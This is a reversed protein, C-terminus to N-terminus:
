RIFSALADQFMREAAEEDGINAYFVGLNNLATARLPHTKPLTAAILDHASQFLSKAERYGGRSMYWEAQNNLVMAKVDPPTQPRHDIAKQLGQYIELAREDQGRAEYLAALNARLKAYEPFDSDRNALIEAAEVYLPEAAAYNGARKHAFALNNLACAYSSSRPGDSAKRLEVARLNAEVAESSKGQQNLAVALNNLASILGDGPTKERIRVLQRLVPEAARYNGTAHYCELWETLVQDLDPHDPGLRNEILQAIQGYVTAADSYEQM